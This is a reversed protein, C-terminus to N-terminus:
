PSYVPVLNQPLIYDPIIFLVKLINSHQLEHGALFTEVIQLYYLLAM